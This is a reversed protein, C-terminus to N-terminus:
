PAVIPDELERGLVKVVKRVADDRNTAEVGLVLRRTDWDPPPEGAGPWYTKGHTAQVGFGARELSAQDDPTLEGRFGVVFSSM